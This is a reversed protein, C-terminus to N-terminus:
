INKLESTVGTMKRKGNGNNSRSFIDERLYFLVWSKASSNITTFPKLAISSGVRESSKRKQKVIHSTPKPNKGTNKCQQLDPYTLGAEGLGNM